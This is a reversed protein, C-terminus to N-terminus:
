FRHAWWVSLEFPDTWLSEQWLYERSVHSAKVGLEFDDGVLHLSGSVRAHAAQEPNRGTGNYGLGFLASVALLGASTEVVPFREVGAEFGFDPIDGDRIPNLWVGAHLAQPLRADALANPLVAEDPGLYYIFQGLFLPGRSSLTASTQLAWGDSHPASPTVDDWYRQALRQFVPWLDAIEWAALMYLAAEELAPDGSLRERYSFYTTLDGGRPDLNAAKILREQVTLYVLLDLSQVVQQLDRLPTYPRLPMAYADASNRNIGAVHIKLGRLSSGNMDGPDRFFPHLHATEHRAYSGGVAILLDPILRAMSPAEDMGFVDHTVWHALSSGSQILSDALAPESLIGVAEGGPSYPGLLGSSLELRLTLPESM